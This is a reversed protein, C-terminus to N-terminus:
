SHRRALRLKRIQLVPIKLAEVWLTLGHCYVYLPPGPVCHTFTLSKNYGTQTRKNDFVVTCSWYIIRMIVRRKHFKVIKNVFYYINMIKFNPFFHTFISPFLRLGVDLIGSVWLGVWSQDNRLFIGLLWYSSSTTDLTLLLLHIWKKIVYSPAQHHDPCLAWQGVDTTPVCVVFCRSLVSRCCINM